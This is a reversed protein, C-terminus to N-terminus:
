SIVLEQPIDSVAQLTFTQYSYSGEEQGLTRTEFVVSNIGKENLHKCAVPIAVPAQIVTTLEKVLNWPYSGNTGAIVGRFSLQADDEGIYEKVTGNRGQIETKVVKRPYSIDVLISLFSIAPTIKTTGDRDIYTVSEITIQQNTWNKFPTPFEQFDQINSKIIYKNPKPVSDRAKGKAITALEGAIRAGTLIIGEPSQSPIVFRKAEAIVDNKKPVILEM